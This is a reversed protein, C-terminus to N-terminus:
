LLHVYKFEHSPFYSISLAFLRKHKKQVFKFKVM